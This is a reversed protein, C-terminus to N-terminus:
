MPPLQYVEIMLIDIRNQIRVETKQIINKLFERRTSDKLNNDKINKLLNNFVGESQEANMLLQPALTNTRTLNNDFEFSGAWSLNVTLFVQLLLVGIIKIIKKKM